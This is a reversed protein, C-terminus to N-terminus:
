LRIAGELEQQIQRELSDFDFEEPEQMPSVSGQAGTMQAVSDSVGAVSEGSGSSKELFYQYIEQVTRYTLSSTDETEEAEKLVESMSEAMQAAEATQSTMYNELIDSFNSIAQSTELLDDGNSSSNGLLSSIGSLSSNGYLGSIGSTLSSSVANMIGSSDSDDNNGSVANLMTSTSNHNILYQYYLDESLSSLGSIASVSAM